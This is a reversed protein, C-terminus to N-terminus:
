VKGVQNAEDLSKDLYNIIRHASDYENNLQIMTEMEKIPNVNSEELYGQRVTYDGQQAIQYGVGDASFNVGTTRPAEQPDNMKAITLNDIVDQGLSIEGTKSISITKKQATTLNDLYVAGNNGMVKNGDQDVLYGEDSIKFNGNRTLETGNPTQVVFYGNGSIAMDLPNATQMLNGQEFDTNQQLEVKGYQNMIMSFPIEEKFGTTNLNALNNAVVELNKMRAQMGRAALYIGKVM